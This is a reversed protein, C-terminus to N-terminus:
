LNHENEFEGELILPPQPANIAEDQVFNEQSGEFHRTIQQIISEPYEFVIKNEFRLTTIGFQQLLEQDRKYDDDLMNYHYHYEGDLEIALKLSPCYFDLIHNGISYQRRFQLGCIQKGKHMRWLAKEAITSNNRLVRRYAKIEPTNCVHQTKKEQTDNLAGEGGRIKSPSNDSENHNRYTTM